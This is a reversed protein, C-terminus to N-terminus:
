KYRLMEVQSAHGFHLRFSPKLVGWGGGFGGGGFGEWFVGCVCKCQSRVLHGSPIPIYIYIDHLYIHSPKKLFFANILIMFIHTHSDVDVTFTCYTHLYIYIYM